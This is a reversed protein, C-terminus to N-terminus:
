PKLYWIPKELCGDEMAERITKQLTKITEESIPLGVPVPFKYVLNKQEEKARSLWADISDHAPGHLTIYAGPPINIFKARCTEVGHDDTLTKRHQIVLDAIRSVPDSM